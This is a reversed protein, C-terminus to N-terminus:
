FRFQPPAAVEALVPPNADFVTRFSVVGRERRYVRAAGAAGQRVIVGLRGGEGLQALWAEPVIEAAGNLVIVDYPAAESWGAVLPTSAVAVTPIGAAEFAAAAAPLLEAIPELVTVSAGCASLIAAAYGSGGALELAREGPRPELAQLLKAIHRPRLLYRGYGLELEADAYAVAKTSVPAFAERPVSRFAAILAPDTVDAPRIQSEVMATRAKAYDM